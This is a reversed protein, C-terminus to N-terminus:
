VWYQRSCDLRCHLNQIWADEALLEARALSPLLLLMISLIRM